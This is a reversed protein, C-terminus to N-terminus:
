FTELLKRQQVRNVFDEILPVAENDAATIPDLHAYGELIHVEKWAAPTAISGLYGAFSKPEPTLGNSGGIAIVPVDMAANQTVVLPGEDGPDLALHEAVLASSDRGYAFDLFPRGSSFYWEFGNAKGFQTRLFNDIPSVERELGNKRPPATPDNPDSPPGNDLIACGPSVNFVNPPCTPLTPDGADKWTRLGGGPEALAIYIDDNILGPVPAQYLNEADDTFGASLRFATNPSFDDDLFLGAIARNTAPAGLFLSLPFGGFTPTRQILSPEFPQYFAAVAAVEGSTALSQLPIGSFSSLFVDPGGPAELDAITQLYEARTPPTAQGQGAGGGELLVLGDILQHGAVTVSPDPDFDYAAFTASWTTGQSHGGLLVLGQEGVLARAQEVLIRWDRFYTDLGWYAMFRVDDQTMLAPGRVVGFADELPLQPDQVGDQDIDRDGAAPNPFDDLPEANVDPFYFQAGQFISCDPSPPSQQCAPEEAGAVAFEAGLRDELPNPRRDVAWVELAGGYRQVLDRALPDFTTGGGLFGPILILVVRTPPRTPADLATRVYSVRNLDPSPGLLTVVPPAAPIEDPGGAGPTHPEVHGPLTLVEQMLDPAPGRSCRANAGLLALPPLVLLTALVRRRVPAGGPRGARPRAVLAFVALAAAFLWPAAPEPVAVVTVTLLGAPGGSDVQFSTTLRRIATAGPDFLVSGAVDAIALPFAGLGDELELFLTPVLFSGAPSVVGAGPSASAPDLRIALGGSTAAELVLVDFTTNQTVPVQGLAIDLTGSLAEAGGVEAAVSSQTPDIVLSHGPAAIGLVLGFGLLWRGM